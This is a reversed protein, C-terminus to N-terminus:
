KGGHKYYKDITVKVIGNETKLTMYLDPYSIHDVTKYEWHGDYHKYGIRIPPDKGDTDM